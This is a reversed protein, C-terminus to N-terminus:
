DLKTHIIWLFIRIFSTKTRPTWWDAQAHRNFKWNWLQSTIRQKTIFNNLYSNVMISLHESLFWLWYLKFKERSYLAEFGIKWENLSWDVFLWCLTQSCRLTALPVSERRPWLPSWIRQINPEDLCGLSFLMALEFMRSALEFMRSALEFMRSALEFMRSALEFMRSALEFMRSCM